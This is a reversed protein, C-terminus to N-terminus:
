PGSREAVDAVEHDVDRGSRPLRSHEHLAHTAEEFNRYIHQSLRAHAFARGLKRRLLANTAYRTSSLFYRREHERVMEFFRPAAPRGLEFNDYNVILNVRRGLEDLRHNLFSALLDAEDLTNVTLGEFNIFVLNDDARYDVREDLTLPSREALRLPADTFIAADMERLDPAIQPLFGMRALVDRELDMGPAIEILELGEDGLRLMCRETVYLVSQGAARAREGSFTVHEVEDIFKPV